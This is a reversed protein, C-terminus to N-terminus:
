ENQEKTEEKKNKRKRIVTSVKGGNNDETFVGMEARRALAAEKRAREETTMYLGQKKLEEIKAKKQM